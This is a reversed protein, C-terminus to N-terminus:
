YSFRTANGSHNLNNPEPLPMISINGLLLSGYTGFALRLRFTFVSFEMRKQNATKVM